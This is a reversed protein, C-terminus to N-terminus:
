ARRPKSCVRLSAYHTGWAGLPRLGHFPRGMDARAGGARAPRDPVGPRGESGSLCSWPLPLPLLLSLSWLGLWAPAPAPLGALCPGPQSGARWLWAPGAASKIATCSKGGAGSGEDRIKIAPYSRRGGPRQENARLAHRGCATPTPRWAMGEAALGHGAGALAHRPAPGRLPKRRPHPRHHLFCKERM